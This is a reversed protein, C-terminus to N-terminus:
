GVEMRKDSLGTAWEIIFINRLGKAGCFGVVRYTICSYNGLNYGHTSITCLDILGIGALENGNWYTGVLPHEMVGTAVTWLTISHMM